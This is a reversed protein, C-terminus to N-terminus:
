FRKCEPFLSYALQFLGCNPVASGFMVQNVTMLNQPRLFAAYMVNFCM